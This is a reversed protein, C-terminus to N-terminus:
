EPRYSKRGGFMANTAPSHLRLQAHIEGEVTDMVSGASYLWIWRVQMQMDAAGVPPPSGVRGDPQGACSVQSGASIQRRKTFGALGAFAFEEQGIAQIKKAVAVASSESPSNQQLDGQVGYGVSVPEAANFARRARRSM